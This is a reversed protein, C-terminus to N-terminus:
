STLGLQRQAERKGLARVAALAALQAQRPRAKGSEWKYISVGSVGALKGYAEASVGLKQRHAALRTASFRHRVESEAPAAAAPAPRTRQIQKLQRVLSAIERKLAAIESRNKATSKRLPDVHARIERRATKSIAEKFVTTINAM